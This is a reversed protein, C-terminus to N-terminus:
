KEEAKQVIDKKNLSSIPVNIWSNHTKNYIVATKGDEEDDVFYMIRGLTTLMGKSLEEFKM